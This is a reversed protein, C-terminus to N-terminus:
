TCNVSGADPEPSSLDRLKYPELDGTASWSTAGGDTTWACDYATQGHVRNIIRVGTECNSSDKPACASHYLVQLSGSSFESFTSSFILTPLTPWNKMAACQIDTSPYNSGLIRSRDPRVSSALIEFFPPQYSDYIVDLACVFWTKEKVRNQFTYYGSQQVRTYTVLLRKNKWVTESQTTAQATGAVTTVLVGMVAAAKM